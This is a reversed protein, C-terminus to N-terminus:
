APAFVDEHQTAPASTATAASRVAFRGDRQLVPLVQDAFLRMNLEGDHTRCEAM